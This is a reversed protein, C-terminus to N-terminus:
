QEHDRRKEPDHKDTEDHHLKSGAPRHLADDRLKGARFHGGGGTDAAAAAIEAGILARGAARAPVHRAFIAARLPEIWFEDLFQFLLEAEVLRHM